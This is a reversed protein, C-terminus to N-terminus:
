LFLSMVLAGAAGGDEVHIHCLEQIHRALGQLGLAVPSPVVQGTNAPHPECNARLMKQWRSEPLKAPFGLPFGLEFGVRVRALTLFYLIGLAFGLRGRSFCTEM